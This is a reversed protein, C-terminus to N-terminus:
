AAASGQAHAIVRPLAAALCSYHSATELKHLHVPGQLLTALKESMAPPVWNDLSGYWISASSRVAAAMPSWPQVYDLVARQYAQAGGALCHRAMALWLRRFRPDTVLAQDAGKPEAFLAAAFLGPFARVAVAQAQTAMRFLRPYDRALRFVPGGAMTGLFDGSELPAPPAILHLHAIREPWRAALSLAQVAGLSFGILTVPQTGYRAHIQAGVDGDRLDPAFFADAFDGVLTLEDPSGPLGHLYVLPPAAGTM